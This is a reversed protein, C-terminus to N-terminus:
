RILLMKRAIRTDNTILSYIYVGSAVPIGRDDVGEWNVNYTGGQYIGDVLTTVRQGLLNYVDMRVWGLNPCTFQISTQPNFPNPFNQSLRYETPVRATRNREEIAVTPSVMKTVSFDDYYATGTTKPNFRARVSIGTATAPAQEAVMYQTWGTSADVQNVYVFKDGGVLNWGAELDTDSHFFYCLNVREQLNEKMIYTPEYANSDIVGVTKVWVGIKYWEGAEVAYPISYYVLETSATSTDPLFMEVAYTGAHADTDTVRTFGGLGGDFWDMWGAVDEAGGNFVGMTWSDATNCDVGDFYVTGTAASGMVMEVFVQEPAESLIVVDSLQTFSTSAATQDAWLTATALETGSANNFTYVVGVRENDNAPSTNVGETKVWASVAFTGTGANNWYLNANDVSQWGVEATTAASKTIKFSSFGYMATDTTAFVDTGFTANLPSWFSPTLDEMDNNGILESGEVQIKEVSFDDYYATGTTKPNFRARVSIGTATAPAQEAVMYQTWGTSADVQNVYVFKDGGVLNWGAELDTDSHFFYCLNVREQLNEKMIYTPEYANSDIVGVTKVWVGIKYWEGAEVAYPISYYVLETSATSTDPLFMEVAYTGAHADTDTVRTFGGLGGDFWDMWGAVDEAGGNFVGMTWSDATNCDVGDFYVTGTAASGMVMEVFVQEPAESLIVVDSLQTFSTSAATQDAWLTATALETGSANNFTYVVGVRENDNAPSTNVGETKVWASVAFTGTGANNWYLNANDVSQWGVEATTAASKTIKFSSFGYMATDTTAFVDTGFTANLPSWFSPTLDEMDSNGILNQAYVPWAMFLGLAIIAIVTRKM